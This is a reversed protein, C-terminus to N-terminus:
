SGSWEIDLVGDDSVQSWDVLALAALGGHWFDEM